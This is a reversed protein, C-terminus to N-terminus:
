AALEGAAHIQEVLRRAHTAEAVVREFTPIDADWEVLTSVRGCRRLAHAYLAWVADSVPASHTDFLYSGCDTFGALHIQAVRGAPMADLYQIADFGLNVSSVYVNNVDLLIGCDATEAVAALFDWEHITSHRYALYTSPNELCIRRGLEHQVAGVRAVVHALSEDTYPIPLLDFLSRGRVGTWCLHDTVLAPEIHDILRRLMRLYRRDLPDTGGISLGVGHLAVPGYGRVQELVRLPRGGTEMYNESIAEFWDAGGAGALITEYHERRLGIGFGLQPWSVEPIPITLGRTMSAGTTSGEGTIGRVAIPKM